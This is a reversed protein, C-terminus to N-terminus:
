FSLFLSEPLLHHALRTLLDFQCEYSAQRSYCIGTNLLPLNAECLIWKNLTGVSKKCLEAM